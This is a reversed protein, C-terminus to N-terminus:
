VEAVVKDKTIRMMDEDIKQAVQGEQREFHEQNDQDNVAKETASLFLGEEALEIHNHAGEEALDACLEQGSEDITGAVASLESLTKPDGVLPGRKIEFPCSDERVADCTREIGM